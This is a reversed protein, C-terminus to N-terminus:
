LTPKRRTLNTLLIIVLTLMLIRYIYDGHTTYFTSKNSIALKGSVSGKKGYALSKVIDGKQNILASIGTNASRVISRRTEIARLRAMSLHQKHGQSTSWWGDNTIIALLNAGKHVYETVYEGYVSEYCIIPAIKINNHTFVTREKQTSLTSVSGGLDIMFNKLIPQLVSRYPTHEVGVVLKSKHYTELDTKKSTFFSSNYSNYWQKSNRYFNATANPTASQPYSNIFTIGSLFAAQPKSKIYNNLAIYEPTKNFGIIQRPQPLTTEPAAIFTFSSDLKEDILRILDKAVKLNTTDYKESYPDLNPQLAIVSVKESDEETTHYIYLSSFIGIAVLSSAFLSSKIFQQRNKNESYKVVAKFLIINVIWIWLSGGFVGTYEYWQVWKHYDAFGNGLNLWPWSLEWNLHFKEFGIWLAILSVLSLKQSIRKAIIHYALFVLSMLFANAINAFLMGFPTAYYLWWTTAVNFILFTIYSLFLIKTKSRKVKETRIKHEALLLPVFAIFLFLPFGYTPWAIALLFGSSLALYFNKM